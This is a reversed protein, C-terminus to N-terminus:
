KHSVDNGFRRFLTKAVGNPLKSGAAFSIMTISITGHNANVIVSAVHDFRMFVRALEPFPSNVRM